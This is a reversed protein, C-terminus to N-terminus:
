CKENQRWAQITMTKGDGLISVWEFEWARMGFVITGNAKLSQAIPSGIRACNWLGNLFRYVVCATEQPYDHAFKAIAQERTKM